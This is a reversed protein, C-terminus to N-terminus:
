YINVNLNLFILLSATGFRRFGIVWIGLAEGRLYMSELILATMLFSSLSLPHLHGHIRLMLLSSFHLALNVNRGGRSDITELWM